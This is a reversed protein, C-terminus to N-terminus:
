VKDFVKTKMERAVLDWDYKEKVMKKANEVLKQRLDADGILRMVQKAISEPNNVECFLGTEGDHLFDPIGGVSTAIVPIGAAMAEIFSSGFGESLSPRVFIDAEHLHKSIDSHPIYGLFMVRAELEYSRATLKLASELPGTGVIQLKVNKPLFKLAKIIDGVANKEVLRSTTILVVKDKNKFGLDQIKFRSVDVGNPIVCSNGIYGIRKAWDALFNSIAQVKGAHRFGYSLLPKFILIRLRNFVHTFPDGDQLTLVYPTRNGLLRMLVIPFLMYTMIAWLADYRRMRNLKLALLAARPVFLIKSLYGLGGNIRYITCNGIKEKKPHKTDFSLTVIDFEIDSIRNTIEKVAIEAGGEVPHYALSFILIRKDRAKDFPKNSM